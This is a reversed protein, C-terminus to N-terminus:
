QSGSSKVRRRSGQKSDVPTVDAQAAPVLSKAATVARLDDLTPLLLSVAEPVNM